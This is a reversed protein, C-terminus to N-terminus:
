GSIVLSGFANTELGPRTLNVRACSTAYKRAIKSVTEDDVGKALELQVATIIVTNNSDDDDDDLFADIKAKANPCDRLYLVTRDYEDYERLRVIEESMGFHTEKSGEDYFPM